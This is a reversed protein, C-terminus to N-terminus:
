NGIFLRFTGSDIFIFIGLIILVFPTIVSGYKILLKAIIPHKVLWYALCCWLAVLCYFIILIITLDLLNRQSFLSLYIGINDGGNAITISAVYLVTSNLYRRIDISSSTTNFIPETLQINPNNDPQDFLSKIGIILPVLGLFGIWEKPIILGGVFGPLSALIIMTFGIYQGIVISYVQSKNKNQSFFLTLILLDDLNTAIFSLIGTLFLSFFATM